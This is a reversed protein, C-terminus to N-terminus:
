EPLAISKGDRISGMWAYIQSDVDESLFRVSGDALGFHAGGPHDSGASEFFGNNLGGTQGIDTGEGAVATVFLTAVGATAWGDNSFSNSEDYGTAGPPPLLRQLEGILITYSTGDVLDCIRTASNPWFAGILEGTPDIYQGAVFNHGCAHHARNCANNFGNLRGLCAGYDTGGGALGPLLLRTQPEEVGDRRSPCYFTAVDEAAVPANGMVGAGFNWQAFLPSEGLQPLVHLMWSTGHPGNVADNLPDYPGVDPYTANLLCGPPLVGRASAYSLLALTIQRTHNACSMRRAAERAVQVAPLLMALLLTIIAIVVLLEVLTFGGRRSTAM